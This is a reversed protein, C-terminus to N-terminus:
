TTVVDPRAAGVVSVEQVAAAGRLGALRRSDRLLAKALGGAAIVAHVAVERGLAGALAEGGFLRVVPLHPALATVKAQQDPSGDAAEVLLAPAGSRGVRGGKLAERVKEYGAVLQGARRALGIRDLCRRELLRDLQAALDASVRVSRRAAKSFANRRVALAVAAAGATLWMGRGPLREELDPVVEGDPSAVFRIMADKEAVVGTAVCRRRSGSEEEFGDDAGNEADGVVEDEPAGTM